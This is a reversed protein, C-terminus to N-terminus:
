SPFCGSEGSARHMPPGIGHVASKVSLALAQSVFYRHGGPPLQCSVRVQTRLPSTHFARSNLLPRAWSDPAQLRDVCGLLGAFDEWFESSLISIPVPGLVGLNRPIPGKIKMSLM